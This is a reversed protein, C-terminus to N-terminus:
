GRSSRPTRGRVVGVFAQTTEDDRDVLWVLAITTPRVGRVPRHVADRRRHLRAVSMPLITVGNGAAAVEVAQEATMPPFDLQDTTPVFDAPPGGVFQEDALDALDLEEYAAVPHERSAVVVPVEDYLRVLHMGDRDVPLRALAMDVAGGRVSAEAESAELPVLELRPRDPRERWSRAWRDPTVGTVFGVRLLVRNVLVV